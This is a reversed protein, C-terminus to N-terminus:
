MFDCTHDPWRQVNEHTCLSNHAGFTFSVGRDSEGWGKVDPDPDSWLIDCLLGQAYSAGHTGSVHDCFSHAASDDIGLATVGGAPAM